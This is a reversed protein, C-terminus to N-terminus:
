SFIGCLNKVHSEASLKKAREYRENKTISVRSHPLATIMRAERTLPAALNHSVKAGLPHAVFAAMFCKHRLMRKSEVGEGGEGSGWQVVVRRPLGRERGDGAPGSRTEAVRRGGDLNRVENM